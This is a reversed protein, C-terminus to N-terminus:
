ILPYQGSNETESSTAAENHSDHSQQQRDPKTFDGSPLVPEPGTITILGPQTLDTINNTIVPTSMIDPDSLSNPEDESDCPTWTVDSLLTENASIAPMSEGIKEVTNKSDFTPEIEVVSGSNTDNDVEGSDCMETNGLGSPKRRRLNTGANTDEILITPLVVDPSESPGSAVVKDM